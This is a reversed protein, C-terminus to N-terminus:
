GGGTALSEFEIYKGIITALPVNGIRCFSQGGLNCRTCAGKLADGSLGEVRCVMQRPLWRNIAKDSCTAFLTDRIKQEPLSGIRFEDEAIHEPQNQHHHVPDTNAQICWARADIQSCM